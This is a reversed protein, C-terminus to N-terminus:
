GSIDPTRSSTKLASQSPEALAYRGPAVLILAGSAVLARAARGWAGNVGRRDGVVEALSLPRGAVAVAGLIEQQLNRRPRDRWCGGRWRVTDWNTAFWGAARAAANSQVASAALLDAYWAEFDDGRM